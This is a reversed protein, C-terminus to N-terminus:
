WPWRGARIGEVTPIVGYAADSVGYSLMRNPGVVHRDEPCYYCEHHEVQWGYVPVPVPVEIDEIDNIMRQVVVVRDHRDYMHVTAPHRCPQDGFMDALRWRALGALPSEDPIVPFRRHNTAVVDVEACRQALTLAFVIAEDTDQDVVILTRGPIVPLDAVHRGAAAELSPLWRTTSLARRASVFRLPLLGSDESRLRSAVAMASEFPIGSRDFRKLNAV